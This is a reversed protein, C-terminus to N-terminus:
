DTVPPANLFADRPGWRHRAVVVRRRGSLVQAPTAL